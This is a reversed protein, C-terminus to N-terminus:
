RMGHDRMIKEALMQDRLGNLIGRAQEREREGAGPAALLLLAAEERAAESSDVEDPYVAFVDAYARLADDRRDQSRYVRATELTILAADRRSAPSDDLLERAKDLEDLAEAHRGGGVLARAALLYMARGAPADSGARELAGMALRYAARWGEPGDRMLSDGLLNLIPVAWQGALDADAARELLGRAQLVVTAAPLLPNAENPEELALRGARYAAEQLRGPTAPPLAPSAADAAFLYRQYAERSFGSEEALRGALLAAEADIDAFVALRALAPRSEGLERMCIAWRRAANARLIRPLESNNMLALYDAAAGRWEGMLELARGRSWKARRAELTSPGSTAIAQNFPTLSAEIRQRAEDRWTLSPGSWRGRNWRDALRMLFAGSEMNVMGQDLSDRVSFGGGSAEQFSSAAAAFDGLTLDIDAEPPEAGALIAEARALALAHRAEGLRSSLVRDTIGEPRRKRLHSIMGIALELKDRAGGSWEHAAEARVALDYAGDPDGGGALLRGLAGAMAEATRGRMDGASVTQADSDATLLDMDGSLSVPGGMRGLKLIIEMAQFESALLTSFLRQRRLMRSAQHGLALALGYERRAEATRAGERCADYRLSPNPNSPRTPPYLRALAEGLRGRRLEAIGAAQWAAHNMASGSLIPELRELAAGPRGLSLLIRALIVRAGDWSEGAATGELAKELATAAQGLLRDKEATGASEAMEALALGLGIDAKRRDDDSPSEEASVRRFWIAAGAPDGLLASAQGRYLVARARLEDKAPDGAIYAEAETIAERVFQPERRAMRLAIRDLEIEKRRNGVPFALRARDLEAIARNLLEDRRQRDDSNGPYPIEEAMRRLCRSTRQAADGEMGAPLSVGGVRSFLEVALPNEGAAEYARGAWYAAQVNYAPDALRYRNDALQVLSDAAALFQERGSAAGFRSRDLIFRATERRKLWAQIEDPPGSRAQSAPDSLVAEALEGARQNIGGELLREAVALRSDATELTLTEGAGAPLAALFLLLARALLRRM